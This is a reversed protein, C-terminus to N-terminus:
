VSERKVNMYLLLPSAVFISSYTGVVLGILMVYSFGKIVETGFILLAILALMTTLGTIVTRSLTDNVSLDIIEGLTKKRYKRITERVRDFVVVTDNISYGAVMLVAAVTTLDFETGTLTFLLMVALVDHVLAIIGALGFQWEFRFWIYAMIGLISYIFAKFGVYILETGVQPGVYEVRRFEVGSGLATEVEKYLEKQQAQTANKGPIKIMFELPGFEQITPAGTSMHELSDRIQTISSGEPAKIEMLMGGTFDIGLNMGRTCMLTISTLMMLASLFLCVKHMAIFKIHTDDKILKLKIM